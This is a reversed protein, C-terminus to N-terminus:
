EEEFFKQYSAYFNASAEGAYRSFSVSEWLSDNFAAPHEALFAELRQRFAEQERQAQMREKNAATAERDYSNVCRVIRWGEETELLGSVEGNSLAFVAKEEEPSLDGRKVALETEGAENYQGALGAFDKEEAAKAALQEAQGRRAEKEEGSLGQSSLFIQQIQMVRAEDESVEVEADELVKEYARNALLYRRFADEADEQTTGCAERDGPGMSALYDAAAQSVWSNEQESLTLRLEEAMQSAAFLRGLYDRLQRLAYDELSEGELSVQWIEAGYAEQYQNKQSVVFIMAESLPCVADGVCLLEDSALGSIPYGGLSLGSKRCGSLAAGALFCFCLLAALFRRSHRGVGM